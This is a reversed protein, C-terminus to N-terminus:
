SQTPLYLSCYLIEQFCNRLISQSAQLSDPQHILGRRERGRQSTTPIPLWECAILVIWTPSRRPDQHSYVPNALSISAGEPQRWDSVVYKGPGDKVLYSVVDM